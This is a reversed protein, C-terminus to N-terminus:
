VVVARRTLVHISSKIHDAIEARRNIIANGECGFELMMDVTIEVKWVRMIQFGVIIGDCWGDVLGVM